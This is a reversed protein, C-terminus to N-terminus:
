TLKVRDPIMLVFKQNGLFRWIAGSELNNINRNKIENCYPNRGYQNESLEREFSKRSKENKRKLITRKTEMMCLREWRKPLSFASFDRECEWRLLIKKENFIEFGGIRM